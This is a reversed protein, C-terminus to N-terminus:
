VYRASGPTLRSSWVEKTMRSLCIVWSLVKLLLKELSKTKYQLVSGTKSVGQFCIFM